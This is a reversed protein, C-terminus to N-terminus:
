NLPFLNRTNAIIQDHRLSFFDVCTAQINKRTKDLRMRMNTQIPIADTILSLVIIFHPIDDGTLQTRNIPDIWKIRRKLHRTLGSNSTHTCPRSTRIYEATCKSGDFRDTTPDFLHQDSFRYGHLTCKSLIRLATVTLFSIGTPHARRRM